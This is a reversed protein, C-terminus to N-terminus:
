FHRRLAEGKLVARYKRPHGYSTGFWFKLLSRRTPPRLRAYPPRSLDSRKYPPM